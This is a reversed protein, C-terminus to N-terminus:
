KLSPPLEPIQLSEHAVCLQKKAPCTLVVAQYINLEINLWLAITATTVTIIVIACIAM